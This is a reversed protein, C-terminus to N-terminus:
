NMHRIICVKILINLLLYIKKATWIFCFALGRQLILIKWLM